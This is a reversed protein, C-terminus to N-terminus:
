EVPRLQKLKRPNLCFSLGFNLGFSFTDSNLDTLDSYFKFPMSLNLKAWPSLRYDFGAEFRTTFYRTSINEMSPDMSNPDMADQMSSPNSMDIDSIDLTDILSGSIATMTYFGAGLSIFPRLKEEDGFSYRYSLDFGTMVHGSLEENIYLTDEDNQVATMIKSQLGSQIGAQNPKRISGLLNLKVSHNQNLAKMLSIGVTSLVTRNSILKNGLLIEPSYFLGLDFNRSYNKMLADLDEYSKSSVRDIAYKKNIVDSVMISHANSEDGELPIIVNFDYELMERNVLVSKNEDTNQIYYFVSRHIYYRMSVVNVVAEICDLSARDKENLFRIYLLNFNEYVAKHKAQNQQIFIKLDENQVEIIVVGIPNSWNEELALECHCQMGNTNYEFIKQGNCFSPLLFVLIFLVNNYKM